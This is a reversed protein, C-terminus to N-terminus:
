VSFLYCWLLGIVVLMDFKFWVLFGLGYRLVVLLCILCVLVFAILGGFM